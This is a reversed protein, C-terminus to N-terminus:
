IILQKRKIKLIKKMERKSDEKRKSKRRKVFHNGNLEKSSIRDENITALIDDKEKTKRSIGILDWQFNHLDVRFMEKAISEDTAFVCYPMECPKNICTWGRAEMKRKREQIISDLHCVCHAIINHNRTLDVFCDNICWMKFEKRLIQKKLQAVDKIMFSVKSQIGYTSDLYLQNVDMDVSENIADFPTFGLEDVNLNPYFIVDIPIEITHITKLLGFQELRKKQERTFNTEPNNLINVSKKAYIKIKRVHTNANRNWFYETSLEDKVIPWSEDIVYRLFSSLSRDDRFLVDYDRPFEGLIEDRISGGFIIGKSKLIIDKIYERFKKEKQLVYALDEFEGEHHAVLKSVQRPNEEDM